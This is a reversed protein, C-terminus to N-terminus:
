QHLCELAWLHRGSMDVDERPQEGVALFRRFSDLTMQPKTADEASLALSRGSPAENSLHGRRYASKMALMERSVVWTLRVGCAAAIDQYSGATKAKSRCRVQKAAHPRLGHAVVRCQTAIFCSGSFTCRSSRAAIAKTTLPYFRDFVITLDAM